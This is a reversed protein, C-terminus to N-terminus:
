NKSSSNKYIIVYMLQVINRKLLFYTILHIFLFEFVGNPIIGFMLPLCSIPQYSDVANGKSPPRTDNERNEDM